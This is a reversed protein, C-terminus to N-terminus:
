CCDRMDAPHRCSNPRRPHHRVLALVHLANAIKTQHRAAWSGPHSRVFVLFAGPLATTVGVSVLRSLPFDLAWRDRLLEVLRHVDLGLRGGVASLFLGVREGAGDVTKIIFATFPKDRWRSTPLSLRLDRPFREEYVAVARSITAAPSFSPPPADGYPWKGTIYLYTGPLAILLGAAAVSIPHDRVTDLVTSM